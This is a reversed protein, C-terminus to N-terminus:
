CIIITEWMQCFYSIFYQLILDHVVTSYYQWVCSADQLGFNQNIRRRHSAYSHFFKTNADGEKLWFLKSQQKWFVKEKLLLTNLEIRLSSYYATTQVNDTLQAHLLENKLWIIRCKFQSMFDCGWRAIANICSCIHDLLLLSGISQWNATVVEVLVTERLWLNEFPFRTPSFCM